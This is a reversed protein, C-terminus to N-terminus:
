SEMKKLIKKDRGVLHHLGKFRSCVQEAPNFYLSNGKEDKALAEWRERFQPNEELVDFTKAHKVEHHVTSPHPSSVVSISDWFYYGAHGVTVLKALQDLFSKRLYQNSEIRFSRLQFPKELLEKRLANAILELREPDGEIDKRFGRIPFGFEEQFQARQESPKVQNLVDNLSYNAQTALHFLLIGELSRKLVRKVGKLSIKAM